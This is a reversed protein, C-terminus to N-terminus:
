SRGILLPYQNSLYKPTCKPSMNRLLARSGMLVSVPEPSIQCRGQLVHLINGWTQLLPNSSIRSSASTPPFGQCAAQFAGTDCSPLRFLFRTKGNCSSHSCQQHFDHPGIFNHGEAAIDQWIFAWFLSWPLFLASFCFSCYSLKSSYSSSFSSAPKIGQFWAVRASPHVESGGLIM